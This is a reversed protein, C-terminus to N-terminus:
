GTFQIKEKRRHELCAKGSMTLKKRKELAVRWCEHAAAQQQTASVCRREETSRRSSSFDCRTHSPAKKLELLIPRSDENAELPVGVNGWYRQCQSSVGGSPLVMGKCMKEKVGSKRERGILELLPRHPSKFSCVFQQKSSLSHSAHGRDEPPCCVQSTSCPYCLTVALAWHVRITIERCTIKAM